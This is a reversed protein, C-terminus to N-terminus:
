RVASPADDGGEARAAAAERCIALIRLYRRLNEPNPVYRGSEWDAATQKSVGAARAVDRLSMGARERLRRREAPPPLSAKERAAKRFAALHPDNM